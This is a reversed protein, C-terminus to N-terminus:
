RRRDRTWRLTIAADNEDFSGAYSLGRLASLKRPLPLALEIPEDRVAVAYSWFERWALQTPEDLDDHHADLYRLLDAAGFEANSIAIARAQYEDPAPWWRQSPITVRDIAPPQYGV